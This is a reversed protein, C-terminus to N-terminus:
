LVQLSIVRYTQILPSTTCITVTSQHGKYLFSLTASVAQHPLSRPIDTAATFHPKYYCPNQPVQLSVVSYTQVLLLTTHVTVPSRHGKYLFSLTASVAQHPLSRPIDTAATFHPKYYCPNQPVQLSVVSYTQVLLLTTHVTVPSRHGKYLFSLTASVAQPPGAAGM